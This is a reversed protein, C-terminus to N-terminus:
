LRYCQWVICNCYEGNDINLELGMCSLNDNNIHVSCSSSCSTSRRVCVCRTICCQIKYPQASIIGSLYHWKHSEVVKWVGKISKWGFFWFMWYNTSGLLHSSWIKKYCLTVRNNKIFKIVCKIIGFCLKKNPGHFIHFNLLEIKICTTACFSRYDSFGNSLSWWKKLLTIFWNHTRGKTWEDICQRIDLYVYFKFM